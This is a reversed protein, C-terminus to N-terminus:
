ERNGRSSNHKVKFEIYTFFSAYARWAKGNLRLIVALMVPLSDMPRGVNQYDYAMRLTVHRYYGIM